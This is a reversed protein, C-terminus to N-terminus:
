LHAWLGDRLLDRIRGRRGGRGAPLHDQHKSRRHKSNVRRCRPYSLTGQYRLVHDIFRTGPYRDGGIAVGECVGDAHRAIINNLENSMGGSKSVYGVSGPRYLKAAIINDIMGGTNGLRICAPKIAGVTAPGIIIVGKREAERILKRTQQEPIGEAIICLVKLQDHQLAEMSTQFASRFSSFNIFVTVDAHKRLCNGLDKYVPVTTEKQGWYVKSMHDGAFPFVMAAVSPTKRGCIHDFDLMGQVATMQMGFVVARTTNSFLPPTVVPAVVVSPARRARKSASDTSAATASFSLKPPKIGLSDLKALAMPVISVINEDPGFVQMSVGIEAGVDRMMKLGAQFNPGGRRVFISVKGAALKPGFEKLARVIGQFTAAVNTFNAIGGGIILVKGHVPDPV